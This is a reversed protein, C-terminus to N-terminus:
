SYFCLLLFAFALKGFCHVLLGNKSRVRSANQYETKDNLWKFFCEIPQRFGSVFKSWLPECFQASDGKKKKPLTLLTVGKSQLYLKLEQDSYAKEAFLNETLIPPDTQKFATLGNRKSMRRRTFAFSFQISVAQPMTKTPCQRSRYTKINGVNKWFGIILKTSIAIGIPNVASNKSVNTLFRLM